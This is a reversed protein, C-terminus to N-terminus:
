RGGLYGEILVDDGIKRVRRDILRAADSLKAFGTGALAPPANKGGIFIPAIFIMAKHVLQAEIMSFALGPGGELLISEIDFDTGLKQLMYALDLGSETRPCPLIRIHEPARQRAAEFSDMAIVWVASGPVGPDLVKATMPIEANLDVIIRVPSGITKGNKRITLAPDDALVTGAGVMIGALEQRLKHTFARSKECSIWRSQGTHTAVHGDLSMALKLLVMPSGTTVWTLWPDLIRRAEQTLCNVDVQIDAETLRHVGHGKVKPNPDLVAIVVRSIGARILAETCPPTRGFHNCPELTVYCTAGPLQDPQSCNQLAEIEAHPQGPGHHWGEGICEDHQNVLVCGVPPNPHTHGLGRRSLRIARRMWTLDSRNFQNM